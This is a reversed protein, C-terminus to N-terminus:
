DDTKEPRSPLLAPGVTLALTVAFVLQSNADVSTRGHSIVNVVAPLIFLRSLGFGTWLL